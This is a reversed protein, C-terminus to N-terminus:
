AEGGDSSDTAASPKDSRFQLVRPQDPSIPVWSGPTAAPNAANTPRRRLRKLPRGPEREWCRGVADEFQVKTRLPLPPADEELLVVTQDHVGKPLVYGLETLVRVERGKEDVLVLRTAGLMEDSDNRLIWRFSIVDGALAVAGSDNPGPSLSVGPELKVPRKDEHVVRLETGGLYKIRGGAIYGSVLRAQVRRRDRLAQIFVALALAFAALTGLAEVWSAADGGVLVGCPGVIRIILGVDGAM